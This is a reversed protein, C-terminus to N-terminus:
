QPLKKVYVKKGNHKLEGHSYLRNCDPKDYASFEFWVSNKVANWTKSQDHRDLKETVLVLKEDVYVGYLEIQM